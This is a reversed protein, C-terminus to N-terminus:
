YEGDVGAPGPRTTNARVDSGGQKETMAMGLLVGRKGAPPRLGPDYDLTTMLPEWREAVNPQTRLAPVAAYTMSVPCGHGGEVQALGLFAGARGAQAGPRPVGWPLAHRGNGNAVGM